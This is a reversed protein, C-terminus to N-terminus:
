RASRIDKAEPGKMSFSLVFSVELGVRIKDHVVDDCKSIHGFIPGGLESNNIFFFNEHNSVIRGRYRQPNGTSDLKEGRLKNKEKPHIRLKKLLTFHKKAALKDGHLFNHRAYWFQADYNSDGPSFSRKLHRYIENNLTEDNFDILHKALQLHLPKSNPNKALSIKLIEIAGSADHL